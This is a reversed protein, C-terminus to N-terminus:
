GLAGITAAFGPDVSGASISTFDCALDTTVGITVATSFDSSDSLSFLVTTASGTFGAAPGIVIALAPTSSCRTTLSGCLLARLAWSLAAM